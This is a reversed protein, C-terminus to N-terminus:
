ANDGGEEKFIAIGRVIEVMDIPIEVTVVYTRDFSPPMIVKKICGKCVVKGTRDVADVEDDVTPLNLYEYPFAVSGMADSYSKDLVFIAMGSCHAVCVGCGTCKDRDIM